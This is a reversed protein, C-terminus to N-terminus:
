ICGIKYFDLNDTLSEQLGLKITELIKNIFKSEEQFIHVM